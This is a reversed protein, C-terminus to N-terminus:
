VEKEVPLEYFMFRSKFGDNKFVKEWGIRGYSEIVSCGQDKAFRQLMQLMENKWKPLEVGGTFHMVLTRMQPYQTIETVVAGYVIEEDYAIWLQQPATYLRNKIDEVTFRGYTYDAAGKLYQEVSPWVSDIHEVPVISIEM